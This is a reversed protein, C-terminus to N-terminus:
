SFTVTAAPPPPNASVPLTCEGKNAQAEEYTDFYHLPKGCRVCNRWFNGNGRTHPSRNYFYLGCLAVQDPVRERRANERKWRREMRASEEEREAEANARAVFDQAAKRAALNAQEFPLLIQNEM